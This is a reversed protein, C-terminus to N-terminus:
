KILEHAFLNNIRQKLHPNHDPFISVRAMLLVPTFLHLYDLPEGKMPTLLIKFPTRVEEDGLIALQVRLVLVVIILQHLKDIIKGKSLPYSPGPLNDEVPLSLGDILGLKDVGFAAKLTTGELVSLQM